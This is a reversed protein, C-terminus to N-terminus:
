LPDIIFRPKGPEGEITGGEEMVFGWRDNTIFGVEQVPAYREAYLIRAEVEDERGRLQDDGVYHPEVHRTIRQALLEFLHAREKDNAAPKLTKETVILKMESATLLGCRAALWEDSGQILDDHYTIGARRPQAIGADTQQEQQM